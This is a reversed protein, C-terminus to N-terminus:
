DNDHLRPRLCTESYMALIDWAKTSVYEQDESQIESSQNPWM